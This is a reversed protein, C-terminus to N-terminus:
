IGKRVSCQSTLTGRKISRVGHRMARLAHRPFKAPANGGGIHVSLPSFRARHRVKAQGCYCLEDRLDLRRQGERDQEKVGIVAAIEEVPVEHIVEAFSLLWDAEGARTGVSFVVVRSYLLLIPGM